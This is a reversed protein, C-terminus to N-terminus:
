VKVYTIHSYNEWNSRNARVVIQYCIIFNYLCAPSKKEKATHTEARTGAHLTHTPQCTCVSNVNWDNSLSSNAPILSKQYWVCRFGSATLSDCLDYVDIKLSEVRKWFSKYSFFVSNSKKKDQKLKNKNIIKDQVEWFIIRYGSLKIETRSSNFLHCIVWIPKYDNLWNPHLQTERHKTHTYIFNVKHSAVSNLCNWQCFFFFIKHKQIWTQLKM